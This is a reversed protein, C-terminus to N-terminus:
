RVESLALGFAIPIAFNGTGPIYTTIAVASALIAILLTSKQAAALRKLLRSMFVVFLVAFPIGFRMLQDFFFTKTSVMDASVLYDTVEGFFLPVEFFSELTSMAGPLYKAVAPLFGSLGVGFPHHTVTTLACIIM